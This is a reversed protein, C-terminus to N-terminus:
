WTLAKRKLSQSFTVSNQYTVLKGSPWLCLTIIGSITNMCSDEQPHACLQEFCTSSEFLCIMSSITRWTPWRGSNYSSVLDSFCVFFTASIQIRTISTDHVSLRSPRHHCVWSATTNVLDKFSWDSDIRYMTDLICIYSSVAFSFPFKVVSIVSGYFRTWANKTTFAPGQIKKICSRNGERCM